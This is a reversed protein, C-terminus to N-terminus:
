VLLQSMHQELGSVKDRVSRAIYKWENRTYKSTQWHFYKLKCQQFGSYNPQHYPTSVLWFQSAVLELILVQLSIQESCIYILKLFRINYFNIKMDFVHNLIYPQTHRSWLHIMHFNPAYWQPLSYHLNYKFGTQNIWNVNLLLMNQQRRARTHTYTHTYQKVTLAEETQLIDLVYM